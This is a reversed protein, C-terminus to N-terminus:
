QSVARMANVTAGVLKDLATVQRVLRAAQSGDTYGPHERLNVASSSIDGVLTQIKSELITKLAAREKAHNAFQERLIALEKADDASLLAASSTASALALSLKRNEEELMALRENREESREAM